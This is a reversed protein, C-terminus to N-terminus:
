ENRNSVFDATVSPIPTSTSSTVVGVYSFGEELCTALYNFSTPLAGVKQGAEDVAFLRGDLIVNLETQTPPTTSNGVFYDCQAVEELRCTFAQGCRDAGSAGGSSGGGESKGSESYDSFSGSGTSGM